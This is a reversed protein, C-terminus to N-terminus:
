GSLSLRISNESCSKLRRLFATNAEYLQVDYGAFFQYTCMPFREPNWNSEMILARRGKLEARKYPTKFAREYVNVIIPNDPNRNHADIVLYLFYKQADTDFPAFHRNM